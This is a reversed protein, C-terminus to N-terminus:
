GSQSLRPLLAAARRLQESGERALAVARDVKGRVSKATRGARLDAAAAALLRGAQAYRTFASVALTRARAGARSSARAGAVAARGEEATRTFRRLVPLAGAPRASRALAKQLDRAPGSVRVSWRTAAAAVDADDASATAPAALAVLTV